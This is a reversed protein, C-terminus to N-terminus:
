EEEHHKENILRNIVDDFSEGEGKLRSLREKNYVSVWISTKNLVEGERLIEWFRKQGEDGKNKNLIQEAEFISRGKLVDHALKVYDSPQM